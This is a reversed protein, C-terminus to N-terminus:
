AISGWTDEFTVDAALYTWSIRHPLLGVEDLPPRTAHAPDLADDLLQRFSIVSGQTIEVRFYETPSSGGEDRFFHFDAEVVQNEVFARAILPSARDIRKLFLIPKYSRRGAAGADTHARAAPQSYAVLEIGNEPAFSHPTTEAEM